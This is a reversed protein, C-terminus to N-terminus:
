YGKAILARNIFSASYPGGAGAGDTFRYLAKVTYAGPALGTHAYTYSGQGLAATANGTGTGFGRFIDPAVVQVGAADRIEYGIIAVANPNSSIIRIRGSVTVTIRGSDTSVALQPGASLAVFGSDGAAAITISEDAAPAAILEVVNAAAIQSQMRKVQEKLRAYDDALEPQLPM